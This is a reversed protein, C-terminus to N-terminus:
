VLHSLQALDAVSISGFRPVIPHVRRELMALLAELVHPSIGSGGVRLGAARAFMMARVSATDYAPGVGVARARVARRQYEALDGAAVTAGTNAGLATNLGYIAVDSRALTEVVARATALRARTAPALAVDAGDRAVRVLDDLSLAADGLTITM